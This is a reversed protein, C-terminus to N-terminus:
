TNITSRVRQQVAEFDLGPNNDVIRNHFRHFLGQLQSVISNEDNRPDGILARGAFRPLDHAPFV